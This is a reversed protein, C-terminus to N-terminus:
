DNVKECDGLRSVDSCLPSLIDMLSFPMNHAAIFGALKIEARKVGDPITSFVEPLRQSMSIQKSNFIHKESLSHRYINNKHAMLTRDCVKCHALQNDNNEKKYKTLWGKFEPINLWSHNFKM